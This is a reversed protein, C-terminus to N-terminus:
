TYTTFACIDQTGHTPQANKELFIWNRICCFQRRPVLCGNPYVFLWPENIVTEVQMQIHTRTRRSYNAFHQPWRFRNGLLFVCRCVISCVATRVIARCVTFLISPVSFRFEFSFSFVLWTPTPYPSTYNIKTENEKKCEIWWRIIINKYIFYLIASLRHSVVVAAAAVAITAASFFLLNLACSYKQQVRDCVTAAWLWRYFAGHIGVLIRIKDDITEAGVYDWRRTGEGWEVKAIEMEKRMKRGCINSARRTQTHTHSLSIGKEIYKKQSM